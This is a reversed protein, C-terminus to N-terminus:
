GHSRADFLAVVARLSAIMKAQALNKRRKLKRKFVIKVGIVAIKEYKVAGLLSRAHVVYWAVAFYFAAGSFIRLKQSIQLLIKCFHNLNEPM